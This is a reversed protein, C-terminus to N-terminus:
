IVLAEEYKKSYGLGVRKNSYDYAVQIKEHFVDGLIYFDMQMPQVCLQCQGNVELMLDKGELTYDNEGIKFTLSPVGEGSCSPQGSMQQKFTDFDQSPMALCTTGSDVMAKNTEGYNEGIKVSDVDMMWYAQRGKYEQVDVWSPKEGFLGEVDEKGFVLDGKRAGKEMKFAFVVEEKASLVDLITPTGEPQSIGSFAFGCLGDMPATSFPSGEQTMLGIPTRPLEEDM